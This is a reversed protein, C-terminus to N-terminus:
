RIKALLDGALADCNTSRAVEALRIYEAETVRLARLWNKFYRDLEIAQPHKQHHVIFDKRNQVKDAILMEHVDRLPGLYIRNPDDVQYCSLGRNAVNRYEMALALVRPELHEAYTAICWDLSEEAQFVPHVTFADIAAFSAKRHEMIARGEFIHNLWLLGSRKAKQSGYFRGIIELSNM